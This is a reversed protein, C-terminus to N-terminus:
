DADARFEARAREITARHRSTWACIRKATDLLDTGTETLSYDVRPPVTAYVCRTVIGNRELGRLTQALMKHSIGPVAVKLATFRMTGEGLANVILMAWKDAILDLIERELQWPPQGDDTVV